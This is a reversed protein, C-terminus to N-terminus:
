ARSSARLGLFGPDDVCARASFLVVVDLVHPQWWVLDHCPELVVCWYSVGQYGLELVGGSKGKQLMGPLCLTILTNQSVPFEWQRNVLPVGSFRHPMLVFLPGWGNPATPPVITIPPSVQAHWGRVVLPLLSTSMPISTGLMVVSKGM